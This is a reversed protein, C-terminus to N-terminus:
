EEYTRGDTDNTLIGDKLYGHYAETMISPSATWKGEGGTIVWGGGNFAKQDIIWHDGGPLVICVPDRHKMDNKVYNSSLFEPPRGAVMKLWTCYWWHGPKPTEKNVRPDGFAVLAWPM